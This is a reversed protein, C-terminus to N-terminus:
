KPPYIQMGDSITSWWLRRLSDDVDGVHLEVALKDHIELPTHIPPDVAALFDEYTIKSRSMEGVAGSPPIDTPKANVLAYLANSLTLLQTKEKGCEGEEKVVLEVVEGFRRDVDDHFKKCQAKLLEIIADIDKDVQAHLEQQVLPAKEMGTTCFDLLHRTKSVKENLREKNQNVLDGTRQIKHTSHDTHTCIACCLKGDDLCVGIVTDGPHVPCFM